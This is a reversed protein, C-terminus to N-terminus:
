NELVKIYDKVTNIDKNSMKWLMLLQQLEKKNKYYINIFVHITYLKMQKNFNEYKIIIRKQKKNHTVQTNHITTYVTYTDKIYGHKKNLINSTRIYNNLNIITFLKIQEKEFPLKDSIGKNYSNHYENYTYLKTYVIPKM